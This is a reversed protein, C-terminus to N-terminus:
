LWDWQTREKRPANRAFLDWAAAPLVRMIRALIGMQWPIVAFRRKKRIAQAFKEAATNVNMLFPMPSQNIDTM